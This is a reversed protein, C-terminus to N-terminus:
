NFLRANANGRHFTRDARASAEGSRTPERSRETARQCVHGRGQADGFSRRTGIRCVGQSGYQRQDASRGGVSASNAVSRRHAVKRNCDCLSYIAGTTCLAAYPPQRRGPVDTCWQVVVISCAFTEHFTLNPCLRDCSLLSQGFLRITITRAASSIFIAWCKLALITRCIM